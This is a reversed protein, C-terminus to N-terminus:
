FDRNSFESISREASPEINSYDLIFLQLIIGGEGVVGWNSIVQVSVLIIEVLSLSPVLSYGCQMYSEIVSIFSYAAHM